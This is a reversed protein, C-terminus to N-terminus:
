KYLYFIGLTGPGCQISTTLSTNTIIVNNFGFDREIKTKVDGASTTLCHAVFIRKPDILESDKMVHRCYKDIYDKGMFGAGPVVEGAKLEIMPKIQLSSSVVSTFKSCWGGMYFYKLTDIVFSVQIKSRLALVHNTIEKLGLGRDAMDAAELALLGTGCSLSMSDVVSIRERDLKGAATLTVAAAVAAQVIESLKSSIGVFLIDCDEFLWKRFVEEFQNESVGMTKPMTGTRDVYEFLDENKLRGDDLCTKEGLIIQVPAIEIGRADALERPLDATSETIVKVKRM